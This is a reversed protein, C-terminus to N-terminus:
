KLILSWRFMTFLRLRRITNTETPRIKSYIKAKFGLQLWWADVGIVILCLKDDKAAPRRSWVWILYGTVHRVVDEALWFDSVTICLQPVAGQANGDRERGEEVEVEEKVESGALWLMMELRQKPELTCRKLESSYIPACSCHLVVVVVPVLIGTSAACCVTSWFLMFSITGSAIENFMGFTSYRLLLLVLLKEM